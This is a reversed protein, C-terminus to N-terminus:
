ERDLSNTGLGRLRRRYGYRLTPEQHDGALRPSVMEAKQPLRSRGQHPATWSRQLEVRVPPHSLIPSRCPVRSEYGVSWICPLM